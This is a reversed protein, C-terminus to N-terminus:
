LLSYLHYLRAGITLRLNLYSIASPKVCVPSLGSSETAVATRLAEFVRAIPDNTTRILLPDGDFDDPGSEASLLIEATKQLHAKSARGSGQEFFPHSEQELVETFCCSERILILYYLQLRM